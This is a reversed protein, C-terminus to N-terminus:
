ADRLRACLQEPFDDDDIFDLVDFREIAWLVMQADSMGVSEAGMIGRLVAVFPSAEEEAVPAPRLTRRAAELKGIRACLSAARVPRRDM